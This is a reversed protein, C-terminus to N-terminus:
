QDGGKQLLAILQNPAVVRFLNPTLHPDAAIAERLALRRREAKAADAHTVSWIVRPFAGHRDQEIGTRRYSEYERCKRLLTTPLSETGLDIEIFWAQVFESDTSEATEAYADPKLRLRAGGPGVYQRWSAPEVVFDVLVLEHNRHARLLDIHCDALALRHSRFRPSPEYFRRAHRGSRGHLVQDGVVDVYHVLGASGARVGGIPRELTGLLRLERLRALTRRAIRAGSIPAHDAFHIAEVQRVTLFQHEDVSRLIAWDRDSLRDDAIAAVDRRHTRKPRAANTDTTGTQAGDNAAGPSPSIDEAPSSSRHNTSTFPHAIPHGDDNRSGGGERWSV